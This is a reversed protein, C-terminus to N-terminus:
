PPTVEMSEMIQDLLAKNQDYDGTMHIDTAAVIFRGGTECDVNPALNVVYEYRGPPDDENAGRTYESVTAPHGDVTAERSSIMELYTGVCGGDFYNVTVAVGPPFVQDPLSSSTADFPEPAFYSCAPVEGLEFHEFATNTWWGEPLTVRYRGSAHECIAVEDVHETSAPPALLHAPPAGVAAPDPVADVNPPEIPDGDTIAYQLWAQTANANFDGGANVSRDAREFTWSRLEGGPGLTWRQFLPSGM